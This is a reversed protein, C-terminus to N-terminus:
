PLRSRVALMAPIQSTEPVVAVSIMITHEKQNSQENFVEFAAENEIISSDAIPFQTKVDQL